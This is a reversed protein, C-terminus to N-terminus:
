PRFTSTKMRRTIRNCSGWFDDQPFVLDISIVQDVSFINDGDIQAVLVQIHLLLCLGLFSRTM